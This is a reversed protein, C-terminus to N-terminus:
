ILFLRPSHLIGLTSHNQAPTRIDMKKVNSYKSEPQDPQQIVTIRAGSIWFKESNPKESLESKLHGPSTSSNPNWVCQVM